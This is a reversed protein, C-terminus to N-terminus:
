FSDVEIEDADEGPTHCTHFYRCLYDFVVRKKEILPHSPLVDSRKGPFYDEQLCDVCSQTPFPQLFVFYAQRLFTEERIVQCTHLLTIM